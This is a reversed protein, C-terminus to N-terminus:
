KPIETNPDLATYILKWTVNLIYVTAKLAQHFTEASRTYTNECPILCHFTRTDSYNWVFFISM